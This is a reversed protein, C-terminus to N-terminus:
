SLQAAAAAASPPPHSKLGQWGAYALNVKRNRYVAIFHWWHLKISLANQNLNKDFKASQAMPGRWVLPAGEEVMFGISMTQLGHAEMPLLRKGELTEPKGKIGLLRPISPGYIDADMVGAKRGQALFAAALNVALTSKGVGGKGSAVGIVTDM